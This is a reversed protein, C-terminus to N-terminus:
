RNHKGYKAYTQCRQGEAAYLVNHEHMAREGVTGAPPWDSSHWRRGKM